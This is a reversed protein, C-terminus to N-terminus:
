WAPVYRITGNDNIGIWKTPNGASPATTITGAGVGAGNTLNVTSRVISAANSTQYLSATITNILMVGTTSDYTFNIVGDSSRSLGLVGTTANFNLGFFGATNYQGSFLSGDKQIKFKSTSNLQFDAFLSGAASATDTINTFWGTFTVGANNWQETLQFGPNNTTIIGTAVVIPATVSIGGAGNLSVMQASFTGNWAFLQNLQTDYTFLGADGSGLTLATRQATSLRSLVVGIGGAELRDPSPSFWQAPNSTAM